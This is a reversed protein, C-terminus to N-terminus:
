QLSSYFNEMTRPDVNRAGEQFQALTIRYIVEIEEDLQYVYGDKKGAKLVIICGPEMLFGDSIIRLFAAEDEGHLNVAKVSVQDSGYKDALAQYEQTRKIGLIGEDETGSPVPLERPGFRGSPKSAPTPTAVPVAFEGFMLFNHGPFTCVFQYTGAPPATFRVEVTEGPNVLRTFAIVEPDAPQVYDNDPGAGLGRQAVDNGAGDQVMVWNHQGLRSENSLCLVVESGAAVELNDKDFQLLDNKVSIELTPNKCSAIPPCAPPFFEKFGATVSKDSDVTIEVTHASGQVAGSWGSFSWYPTDKCEHRVAASTTLKVVTGSPYSGGPGPPPDLAVAGGFHSPLVTVTLTYSVPPPPPECAALLALKLM